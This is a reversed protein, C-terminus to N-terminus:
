GSMPADDGPQKDEIEWAHDLVHWVARHVWYRLPWGPESVTVLADAVARRAAARVAPDLPDAVPARVGLKRAYSREAEVVHAVIKSRDRGGGRPGKRLVEASREAVREFEDWAALYLGAWRDADRGTLPRHDAEGVADPAGFDTTATGAAREAVHFELRAPFRMGAAVAVPRYRPVYAELADVAEQESRGARCWGPWDLARAFVKREGQEILVAVTAM